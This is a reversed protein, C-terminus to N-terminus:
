FEITLLLISDQFELYIKNLDETYAAYCNKQTCLDFYKARRIEFWAVLIKFIKKEQQITTLKKPIAAHIIRVKYLKM